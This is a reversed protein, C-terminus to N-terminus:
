AAALFAAALSDLSVGGTRAIVVASLLDPRSKGAAM